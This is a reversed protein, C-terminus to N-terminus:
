SYLALVARHRTILADRLHTPDLVRLDPGMAVTVALAHRLDHFTLTLHVWGTADPAPCITPAVTPHLHAIADSRVAVTAVVPTQDAHWSARATAWAQALDFNEPVHAPEALPTVAAIRHLHYFRTHHRHRAALYWTGAANVLGCPDVTRMTARQADRSRYRLRARQGDLVVRQVVDLLPPPREGHWGGPDILVRRALSVQPHHAEPLAATVKRLASALEDALGLAGASPAAVTTLL